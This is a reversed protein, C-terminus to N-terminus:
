LSKCKKHRNQRRSCSKFCTDNGVSEEVAVVAV